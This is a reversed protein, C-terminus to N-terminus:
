THACESEKGQARENGGRAQGKEKAAHLQLGQEQHGVVDHVARLRTALLRAPVEDGVHLEVGDVVRQDQLREDPEQEVLIEARGTRLALQLHGLQELGHAVLRLHALHEVQQRLRLSAFVGLQELLEVEVDVVADHRELRGDVGEVQGDCRAHDEAAVVRGLLECERTLDADLEALLELDLVVVEVAITLGGLDSLVSGDTSVVVALPDIPRLGREATM